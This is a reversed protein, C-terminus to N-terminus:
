YGYDYAVLKGYKTKGVQGCDIQGAWPPLSSMQLIQDVYVM